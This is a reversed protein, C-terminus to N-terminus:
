KMCRIIKINISLRERKFYIILKNISLSNDKIQNSILYYTGSPFM